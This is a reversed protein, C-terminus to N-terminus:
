SKAREWVVMIGIRVRVVFINGAKLGGHLAVLAVFPSLVGGRM